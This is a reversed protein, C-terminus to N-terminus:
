SEYGCTGLPRIHRKVRSVSAGGQWRIRVGRAQPRGAEPGMGGVPGSTRGLTRDRFKKAQSTFLISSFAAPNTLIHLSGLPRVAVGFGIRGLGPGSIGGRQDMRGALGSTRGLTRGEKKKFARLNHEGQM